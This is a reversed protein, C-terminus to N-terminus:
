SGQDRPNPNRHHKSTQETYEAIKKRLSISVPMGGAMIPKVNNAKHEQLIEQDTRKISKAAIEDRREREIKETTEALTEALARLGEGVRQSKAQQDIEPERVHSIGLIAKVLAHQKKAGDAHTRALAVMRASSPPWDPNLDPVRSQRVDQCAAEIAFLPMDRLEHVYWGITDQKGLEDKGKSKWAEFGHLMEAVAAGALQSPKKDAATYTISRMQNVLAIQRAQLAIREEDTPLRVLTLQSREHKMGSALDKVLTEVDIPNQTTLANM